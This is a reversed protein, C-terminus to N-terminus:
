LPWDSLKAQGGKGLTESQDTKCLPPPLTPLVWSAPQLQEILLQADKVCQGGGDEVGCGVCGGGGRESDAISCGKSM